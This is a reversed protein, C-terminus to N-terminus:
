IFYFILYVTLICLFEIIGRQIGRINAWAHFPKHEKWFLAIHLARDLCWLFLIFPFAIFGLVIWSIEKIKKM